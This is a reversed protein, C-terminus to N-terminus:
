EEIIFPYNEEKYIDEYAESSEPWPSEEAFDVAEQIEQKIKKDIKDLQGQTAYKKSLLTEKVQLISDNAKYEEVEEKTRYKAPDSM